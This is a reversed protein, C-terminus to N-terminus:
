FSRGVRRFRGSPFANFLEASAAGGEAIIKVIVQKESEFVSL